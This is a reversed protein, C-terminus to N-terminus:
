RQLNSGRVKLRDHPVTELVSRTNSFIVNVGAEIFYVFSFNCIENKVVGRFDLGHFRIHLRGGDLRRRFWERSGRWGM